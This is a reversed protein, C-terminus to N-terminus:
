KVDLEDTGPGSLAPGGFYVYGQQLKTLGSMDIIELPVNLALSLLKVASKEHGSVLKGYDLYALRVRYGRSVLDYALVTSDLGGSAVVVLNKDEPYLPIPGDAKKSSDQPM